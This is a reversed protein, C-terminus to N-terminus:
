QIGGSLLVYGAEPISLTRLRRPLVRLLPGSPLPYPRSYLEIYLTQVNSSHKIFDHRIDFLAFGRFRENTRM